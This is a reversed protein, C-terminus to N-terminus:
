SEPALQAELRKQYWQTLFRAALAAAGMGLPVLVLHVALLSSGLPLVLLIIGIGFGGGYTAAIALLPFREAFRFKEPVDAPVGGALRPGMVQLSSVHRLNPTVRVAVEAREQSSLAVEGDVGATRRGTNRQTVQRVSILTNSWSRLMLKQLSRVAAWDQERTATFIRRRLRAVNDEHSRWVV